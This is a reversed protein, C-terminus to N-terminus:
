IASASGAGASPRNEISKVGMCLYRFGDLLHNNADEPKDRRKSESYKYSVLEKVFNTCEDSILISKEKDEDFYDSVESIGAMISNKGKLTRFGARQYDSIDEPESPDHFIKDIRYDRDQLWDIAKDTNTKTRYFEDLVHLDGSGTVGVVVLARPDPHWGSDAGVLIRKYDSPDDLLEDPSVLHKNRSFDEYVMGQTAAFGGKLAEAERGTGKFQRALKEKENLFPNNLSNAIVNKVRTTLENGDRGEKKEVFDYFDNFGNGTSTWLSINPGAETRQRSILMENLKYLDTNDYHAVEDCWIFNFEAGAYRNWKDASGLIIVSSNDLVIRKENHNYKKVIPSNEPEGAAFPNLDKGPLQEFLIEYTDRGKAFDQGMVLYHGPIKKATMIVARAGLVSKGSGYGGRFVVVDHQRAQIHKLAEKQASWFKWNVNVTTM